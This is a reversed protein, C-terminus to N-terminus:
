IRSVVQPPTRPLSGARKRSPSRFRQRQSMKLRSQAGLQSTKIPQYRLLDPQRSRSRTPTQALSQTPTQALARMRFPSQARSRIPRRAIANPRLPAHPPVRPLTQARTRPPTQFSTQTIPRRPKAKARLPARPPTRCLSQARMRPPTLPRHQLTKPRHLLEQSQSQARKRPPTQFSTSAPALASELACDLAREGRTNNTCSIMINPYNAAM